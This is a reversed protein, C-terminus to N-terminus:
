SNEHAFAQLLAEAIYRDPTISVRLGRKEVAERTAAGVTAIRAHPMDVLHSAFAEVANVSSFIIWHYSDCALVASRLPKPDSPPAIGIVPLVIVEAGLGRLQEALEEAQHAARTVVVRL